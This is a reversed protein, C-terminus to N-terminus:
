IQFNIPIQFLKGEQNEVAWIGRSVRAIGCHASPARRLLLALELEAQPRHGRKLREAVRGHRTVHRALLSKLEIGLEMM